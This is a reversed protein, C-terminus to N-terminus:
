LSAKANNKGATTNDPMLSPCSTISICPLAPTAAAHKRTAGNPCQNIPLLREVTKRVIEGVSAAVVLTPTPPSAARPQYFPSAAFFASKRTAPVVKFLSACKTAWPLMENTSLLPTMQRHQLPSKNPSIM